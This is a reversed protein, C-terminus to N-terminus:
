FLSYILKALTIVDIVSGIGDRLKKILDEKKIEPLSSNNIEDILSDIIKQYSITQSANGAQFRGTAYCNGGNGNVGGDGGKIIVDGARNNNNM